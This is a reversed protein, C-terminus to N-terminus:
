AVAMVQRPSFLTHQAGTFIGLPLGWVLPAWVKSVAVTERKGERLREGDGKREELRGTEREYQRM